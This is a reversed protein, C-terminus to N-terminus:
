ADKEWDTLIIPGEETIAITHEFHAALSGDETVATWGDEKVKVNGSGMSVMPEIALTMGPRLLEGKGPEGDNPVAPDEHIKKGVGHGCYDKIPSFGFSKVYSGIAYSIDGVRNGAVAKEIGMYLAKKTVEVLRKVSESVEGVIYTYAADSYYGKYEVGMDVSVIDGEKLVRKKSPLGHVVEDNLSICTAYPYKKKSFAPKYGKFAPRGGMKKVLEEARKNILWTSMGAKIFDKLDILVKALIEGGKKILEIEDESKLIIM